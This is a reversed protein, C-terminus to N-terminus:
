KFNGSFRRHPKTEISDPHHSEPMRREVSAPLLPKEM